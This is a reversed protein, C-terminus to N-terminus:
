GNKTERKKKEIFHNYVYGHYFLHTYNKAYKDSDIKIKTKM